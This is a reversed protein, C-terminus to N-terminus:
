DVVLTGAHGSLAPIADEISTIIARRAPHDAVFSVAAQVKPLMSGAAFEHRKIYSAAAKTTLKSLARENATGFGLKVHSVATLILLTDAHIAEALKAAAFDKDVVAEVGVLKKGQRVVPIGGGGAAIIIRGSLLALNVLDAEIIELPRPSAIVRRWGRGADEKVTFHESFALLEAEKKEYFPGIPKTPNKFAPDDADVLTQTVITTAQLSLNANAFANYLANQLWYGIQGQSMASCSDIPMSPVAATNIAQEHLIINGIQPGNGHVIAIEHKMRALKVIAIATRAAAAQQAKASAKGSTSLANGGLAVVIRSM